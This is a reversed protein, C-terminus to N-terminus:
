KVSMKMIIKKQYTLSHIKRIVIQIKILHRLAIVTMILIQIILITKINSNNLNNKNPTISSFKNQNSYLSLSNVNKIEQYFPSNIKKKISINVKTELEDNDIKCNDGKLINTKVFKGNFLNFLSNNRSKREKRCNIKKNILDEEKNNEIIYFM